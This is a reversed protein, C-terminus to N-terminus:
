YYYPSSPNHERSRNLVVGLMNREGLLEMTRKLSDRETIGESAILLIADTYPAFALVDDCALVPPMDFLAITATGSNRLWELLERM